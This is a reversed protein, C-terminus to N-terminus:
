KFLTITIENISDYAELYYESETYELDKYISIDCENDVYIKKKIRSIEKYLEPFNYKSNFVEESLGADKLKKFGRHYCLGDESFSIEFLVIELSGDKDKIQGLISYSKHVPISHTEDYQIEEKGYKTILYDVLPAYTHYLISGENALNAALYDPNFWNIIREAYQPLNPKEDEEISINALANTTTENNSLEIKEEANIVEDKALTRKQNKRRSKKKKNKKIKPAQTTKKPLHDIYSESNTNQNDTSESKENDLNEPLEKLNKIVAPPHMFIERSLKYAKLKKKPQKITKVADKLECLIKKYLSNCSKKISDYQILLTVMDTFIEDAKDKQFPHSDNKFNLLIQNTENLFDFFYPIIEKMNAINHKALIAKPVDISISDNIILDLKYIKILNITLLSLSAKFDIAKDSLELHDILNKIYYAVLIEEADPGNIGILKICEDYYKKISNDNCEESLLMAALIKLILNRGLESKIIKTSNKGFEDKEHNCIGYGDERISLCSIEKQYRVNELIKPFDLSLLRIRSLLWNQMLLINALLNLQKIYVKISKFSHDDFNLFKKLDGNIVFDDIKKQILDIDDETESDLSLKKNEGTKKQRRKNRKKQSKTLPKSIESKTQKTPIEEMSNIISCGLLVFILLFKQVYKYM